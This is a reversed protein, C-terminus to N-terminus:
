MCCNEAAWWTHTKKNLGGEATSKMYITCIEQRISKQQQQTKFVLHRFNSVPSVQHNQRHLIASGTECRVALWLLFGGAREEGAGVENGSESAWGQWERTSAGVGMLCAASCVWHVLNTMQQNILSFWRMCAGIPVLGFVPPSFHLSGAGWCACATLSGVSVPSIFVWM